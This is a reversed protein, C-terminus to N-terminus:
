NNQEHWEPDPILHWHQMAFSQTQLWCERHTHECIHSFKPQVIIRQEVQQEKVNFKDNLKLRIDTMLKLGDKPDIKKDKMLKEIDRLYQVLADRNEEFSIENSIADVKQAVNENTDTLTEAVGWNEKIYRKLLVIHPSSNYVNWTTALIRDFLLDFALNASKYISSLIVFSIDRDTIDYGKESCYSICEKRKEETIIM